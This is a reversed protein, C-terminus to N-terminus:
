KSGEILGGTCVLLQFCVSAREFWLLMLGTPKSLCNMLRAFEKTVCVAAANKMPSAIVKEM